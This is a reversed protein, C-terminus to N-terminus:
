KKWFIPILWDAGLAKLTAQKPKTTKRDYGIEAYFVDLMKEWQESIAQGKGPGDLPTSGYRKSPYDTEPGLGCRLLVARLIAATRRGFRMAEDVTMTWGTAANVARVLNEMRTRTTFICVGLSDEFHRRGRLALLDLLELVLQGARADLEVLGRGVVVRPM